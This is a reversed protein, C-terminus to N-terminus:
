KISQRAALRLQQLRCDDRGEGAPLSRRALESQDRGGPSIHDTTVSDGFIALPRAGRYTPGTVWKLASAKSLLAAGSHLDIGFGVRYVQGSAPPFKTGCRIRNGRLRWLAASLNRSRVGITLLESIEALARGSTACTSMKVM